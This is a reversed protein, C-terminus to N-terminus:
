DKKYIYKKILENDRYFEYEIDGNYRRRRVELLLDFIRIISVNENDPFISNSSIDNWGGVNANGVEADELTKYANMYKHHTYNRRLKLMDGKKENFGDCLSGNEGYFVISLENNSEIKLCFGRDNVEDAYRCNWKFVYYLQSTGDKIYRTIEYPTEYEIIGDMKGKKM